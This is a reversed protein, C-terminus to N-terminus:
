AISVSRSTSWTWSTRFKSHHSCETTASSTGACSGPSSPGCCSQKLIVTAWYDLRETDPLVLQITNKNDTRSRSLMLAYPFLCSSFLCLPSLYLTLFTFHLQTSFPRFICAFITDSSMLSGTRRLRSWIPTRSQVPRFLLNCGAVWAM